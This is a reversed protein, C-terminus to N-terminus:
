AGGQRQNVGHGAARHIGKGGSLGIGHLNAQVRRVVALIGTSVPIHDANLFLLRQLPDIEHFFGNGGGGFVLSHGRKAMKAGLDECAKIYVDSIINSSAGYVCINM